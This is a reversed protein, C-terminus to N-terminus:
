SLRRLHPTHRLSHLFPINERIFVITLSSITKCSHRDNKIRKLRCQNFLGSKLIFLKGEDMRGALLPAASCIFMYGAIQLHM